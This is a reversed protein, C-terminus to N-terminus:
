CAVYFTVNFPKEFTQLCYTRNAIHLNIQGCLCQFYMYAFFVPKHLNERFKMVDLDPHEIKEEKAL